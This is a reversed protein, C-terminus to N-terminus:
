KQRVREREFGSEKEREFGSEKAWKEGVKREREIGERIRDREREQLVAIRIAETM